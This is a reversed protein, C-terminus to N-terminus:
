SRRDTEEISHWGALQERIADYDETDISVAVVAPGHGYITLGVSPQEEIAKIDARTLEIDSVGNVRRRICDPEVTLTYSALQTRVRKQGSYFGITLAVATAIAIAIANGISGARTASLYVVAGEVVVFLLLARMRTIRLAKRIGDATLHHESM